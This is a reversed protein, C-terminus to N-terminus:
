TVLTETYNKERLAMIRMEDRFRQKEVDITKDFARAKVLNDSFEKEREFYEKTTIRNDPNPTINKQDSWIQIFFCKKLM